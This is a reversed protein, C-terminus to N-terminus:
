NTLAGSQPLPHQLNLDKWGGWKLSGSTEFIIDFPQQLEYSIKGDKLFLNQLTFAIIEKKGEPESGLFIEQCRSALELISSATDYYDEDASGLM